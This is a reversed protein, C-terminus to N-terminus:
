PEPATLIRIGKENHLAGHNDFEYRAKMRKRLYPSSGFGGSLILYSQQSTLPHRFIWTLNRVISVIIENPFHERVHDIRTDVLQLIKDIQEDFMQQLETRFLM